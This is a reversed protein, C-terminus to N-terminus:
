QNLSLAGSQLSTVPIFLYYAKLGDCDSSARHNQPTVPTHNDDIPYPKMDVDRPISM